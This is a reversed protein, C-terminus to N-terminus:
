RTRLLARMVAAQHHNWLALGGGLALGALWDYRGATSALWPTLALVFWFGSVAAILRGFFSAYAAFAWTEQYLMRRLPYGAAMRSAILLPMSWALSSPWGVVILAGCAGAVARSRNGCAALREPFLPDDLLPKLARGWWWRLLAPILAVFTLLAPGGPLHGFMPHGTIRHM